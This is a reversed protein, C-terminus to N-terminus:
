QVQVAAEITLTRYLYHVLVIWGCAHIVHLTYQVLLLRYGIFLKEDRKARELEMNMETAGNDRHSVPTLIPTDLVDTPACNRLVIAVDHSILLRFRPYSANPRGRLREPCSTVTVEPVM